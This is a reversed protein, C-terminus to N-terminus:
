LPRYHHATFRSWGKKSKAEVAWHVGGEDAPWYIMRALGAPMRAEFGVAEPHVDTVDALTGTSRKGDSTFSWFTLVGADGAGYVAHEEYVKGDPLEWRADLFVCAGNLARTFTRLCRVPGMPSDADAQWAGLLPDLVGLKGRGKKWWLGKASGAM